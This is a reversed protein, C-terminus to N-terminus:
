HLRICRRSRRLTTRPRHFTHRFATCLLAKCLSPVNQRLRCQALSPCIYSRIRLSSKKSCKLASIDSDMRRYDTCHAESLLFICIQFLCQTCRRIRSPNERPHLLCFICWRIRRLKMRYEANLLFTCLRLLRYRGDIRTNLCSNRSSDPTRREMRSLKM